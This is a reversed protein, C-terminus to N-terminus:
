YPEAGDADAAAGALAGAAAQRGLSSLDQFAREVENAWGQCEGLWDEARLAARVAPVLEATLARSALPLVCHLHDRAFAEQREEAQQPDEDPAISCPLPMWAALEEASRADAPGGDERLAPLLSAAAGGPVFVQGAAPGPPGAPPAPPEPAALVAAGADRPVPAQQINVLPTDSALLASIANDLSGQTGGQGNLFGFAEALRGAAETPVSFSIQGELPSVLTCSRYLPGYTTDGREAYGRLGTLLAPLRNAALGQICALLAGSPPELWGTARALGLTALLCEHALSALMAMLIAEQEPRAVEFLLKDDGGPCAVALWTDAPRPTPAPPEPLVVSRIEGPDALMTLAREGAATLQTLLSIVRQDDACWPPLQEDSLVCLGTLLRALLCAAFCSAHLGHFTQVEAECVAALTVDFRSLMHRLLLPTLYAPDAVACLAFLMDAREANAPDSANLVVAFNSLADVMQDPVGLETRRLWAEETIAACTDTNVSVVTSRPVSM